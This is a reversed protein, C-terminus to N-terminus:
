IDFTNLIIVDNNKIKNEELSKLKHVKIGKVTFFNETDYYEKYDDYLRKELANFMDTNKCILSYNQIRSDVSTFNVTMLKEGENLEIPYRGLKIKLENLEKDKLIISNLLEEKSNLNKKNLAYNKQSNEFIKIKEELVKNKNKEKKLEDELEHIKKNLKENEIKYKNLNEKLVSEKQEGNNIDSKSCIKEKKESFLKGGIEKEKQKGESKKKQSIKEQSSIDFNPNFYRQGINEFLATIGSNSKASTAQFIAGIKQAYRKGEENSVESNEYLDSKNAVVALIANDDKYANIQGNWYEKIADFSSKNTIDYLIM